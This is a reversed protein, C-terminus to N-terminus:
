LVYQDNTLVEYIGTNDIGVSGGSFMGNILWSTKEPIYNMETRMNMGVALGIADKHFAFNKTVNSATAIGGEDRDEFGIFKFGLFSDVEGSVLARVSNFDVSTVQTSGLLQELGTADHLFFRDEKPVGAADLLKKARRLKAITLGSATAGFDEAVQTASAGADLADIVLQEARRAIAGGVTKVLESREDYSIKELDFIDTYEPAVWDTLTATASSNSVNMPVVDSQPIRPTALGKGMKHFKYTSGTVNDRLRVAGLLGSGMSQYAHKVDTSFETVFATSIGITM